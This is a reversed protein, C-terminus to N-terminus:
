RDIRRSDRNRWEIWQFITMHSFAGRVPIDPLFQGPFLSVLVGDNDRFIAKIM